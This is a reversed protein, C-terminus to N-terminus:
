QRSASRIRFALSIRFIGFFIFSLGLWLWVVEAGAIPSSLFTVGVWITAVLLLVTWIIWWVSASSMAISECLSNIAAIIIFIGIVFVFTSVVMMGPLALLWGGAFLELIALALSWGWGHTHRSSSIAYGINIAGGLLLGFAFVYALTIMAPAPAAFTWIGLGLCILGTMLPMWWYKAMGSDLEIRKM